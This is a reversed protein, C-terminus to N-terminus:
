VKNILCILLRIMKDIPVIQIFINNACLIKRLNELNEILNKM